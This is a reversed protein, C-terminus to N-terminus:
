LEYKGEVGRMKRDATRQQLYYLAQNLHSIAYVNEPCAKLTQLHELRNILVNIVEENTTGDHVTSMSGDENPKKNIFDIEIGKDPQEFFSLIYRHGKTLITM